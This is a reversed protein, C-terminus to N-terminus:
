AHSSWCPPQVIPKWVSNNERGRGSSAPASDRRAPAGARWTCPRGGRIPTVARGIERADRPFHGASLRPLRETGASFIAKAWRCATTACSPTPRPSTSISTRCPSMSCTSRARSSSLGQRRSEADGHARGLRRFRAPTFTALYDSTKAIRAQLEAFSAENDEYRPVERGALRSPAGKAHDTAIQVQKTLRFCTPRWGLTSFCRRISRASRRM